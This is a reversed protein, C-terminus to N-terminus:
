KEFGGDGDIAGAVELNTLTVFRCPDVPITPDTPYTISGGWTNSGGASQIEAPGLVTLAEGGNVRDLAPLDAGEWGHLLLGADAFLETGAIGSGLAQNDGIALLGESVLMRGTFTNAASLTLTGAGLKELDADGSIIGALELSSGGAVRVPNPLVTPNPPV